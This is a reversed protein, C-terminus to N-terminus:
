EKVRNIAIHLQDCIFHKYEVEKVDFTYKVSEDVIVRINEKKLFFATYNDSDAFYITFDNIKEETVKKELITFQYIVKYNKISVNFNKYSKIPYKTNNIAMYAYFDIEKLVEFADQEVKIVENIDFKGDRNKDFDEILMLSSMEDFEWSIQIYITNDQKINLKLEVNAFEHPHSYSIQAFFFLALFMITKGTLSLSINSINIM